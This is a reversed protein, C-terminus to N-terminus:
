ARAGAMMNRAQANAELEMAERYKTVMSAALKGQPKVDHGHDTLWQRIVRSDMSYAPADDPGAAAPSIFPVGNAAGNSSGNVPAAPRNHSGPPRGRRAGTGARRGGHATGVKRAHPIYKKILVDRLADAHERNLDIEYDAGDLGFRVTGEAESGDLDDIFLTQVKQAM